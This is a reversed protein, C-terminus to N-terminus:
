EGQIESAVCQMLNGIENYTFIQTRMRGRYSTQIQTIFGQGDYSYATVANQGKISQTVQTICGAEDYEYTINEPGNAPGLDIHEPRLTINVGNVGNVSTVKETGLSSVALQLQQLVLQMQNGDAKQEVAKQVASLAVDVATLAERLRLVDEALLNNPHPLPLGLGETTETVTSM